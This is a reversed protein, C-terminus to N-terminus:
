SLKESDFSWNSVFLLINHPQLRNEVARGYFVEPDISTVASGTLHKFNSRKFQAEFDASNDKSDTVFILSKEALNNEYMLACRYIIGVAEKIDTIKRM